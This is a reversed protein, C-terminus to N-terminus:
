KRYSPKVSRFGRVFSAVMEHQARRNMTFLRDFKQRSSMKNEDEPISLIMFHMTKQDEDKESEIGAVIGEHEPYKTGYLVGMQYFQILEGVRIAYPFSGMCSILAVAGLGLVVSKRSFKM